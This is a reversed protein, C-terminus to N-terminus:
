RPFRPEDMSPLDTLALPAIALADEAPLDHPTISGLGLSEPTAIAVLSFEHDETRGVNLSPAVTTRRVNLEPEVIATGPAQATIARALEVIPARANDTRLVETSGDDFSRLVILAVAGAVATTIALRPLLWHLSWGSRAPLISVIHAALAPDDDVHTLRSAVHDIAEDIRDTM